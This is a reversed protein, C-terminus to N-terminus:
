SGVYSSQLYLMGFLWFAVLVKPDAGLFPARLKSGYQRLKASYREWSSGPAGPIPLMESSLTPRATAM